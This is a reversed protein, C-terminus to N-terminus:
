VTSGLNSTGIRASDKLPLIFVRIFPYINIEINILFVGIRGYQKFVLKSIYLSFGFSLEYVFSVLFCLFIYITGM